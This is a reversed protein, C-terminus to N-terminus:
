SLLIATNGISHSPALSVPITICLVLTFLVLILKSHISILYLYYKEGHHQQEQRRAPVITRDIIRNCTFSNKLQLCKGSYIEVPFSSGICKHVSNGTLNCQRFARRCDSNDYIVAYFTGDRFVIPYVVSAMQEKLSYADVAASDAGWWGIELIQRQDRYLLIYYDKRSEGWQALANTNRTTLANQRVYGQLEQAARNTRKLVAAESLYCREIVAEGATEALLAACVGLVLGLLLM